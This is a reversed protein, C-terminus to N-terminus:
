LPLTKNPTFLNNEKEKQDTELQSSWTNNQRDWLKAANEFEANQKLSPLHEHLAKSLLSLQRDSESQGLIRSVEAYQPNM